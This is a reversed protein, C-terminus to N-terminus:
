ESLLKVVSSRLVEAGRWGVEVACVNGRRDLLVLTPVLLPKSPSHQLYSIVQERPAIGLPFTLSFERRYGALAAPAGVDLAIAVPCFGKGGLERYLKQIGASAVKCTPCGTTMFDLLVVKGKQEHVKIVPGDLTGVDLPPSPRRSSRDPSAAEAATWSWGLRVGAMLAPVIALLSRRKV